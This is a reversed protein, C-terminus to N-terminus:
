GKLLEALENWALTMEYRIQFMYDGIVYLAETKWSKKKAILKQFMYGGIM